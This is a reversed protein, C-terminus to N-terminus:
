GTCDIVANWQLYLFLCKLLEKRQESGVTSVVENFNSIAIEWEFDIEKANPFTASLGESSAIPESTPLHCAWKDDSANDAHYAVWSVTIRM